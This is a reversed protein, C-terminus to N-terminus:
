RSGASVTFTTQAAPGLNDEVDIASVYLNYAGNALGSQTFTTAAIFASDDGGPGFTEVLYGAITVQGQGLATIDAPKLTYSWAGNAGATVTQVNAAQGVSGLTLAVRAGAQRIKQRTRRGKANGCIKPPSLTATAKETTPRSPTPTLAPWAARCPM